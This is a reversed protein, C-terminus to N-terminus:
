FRGFIKKIANRKDKYETGALRAAIKKYAISAPSYPSSFVVPERKFISKKVNKDEPIIGIVPLNCISEIEKKNIQNKGKRYKNIIIGLPKIKMENCLKVIKM